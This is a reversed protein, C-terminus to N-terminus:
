PQSWKGTHDGQNEFLQQMYSSRICTGIGVGLHLRSVPHELGMLLCNISTPRYVSLRSEPYILKSRSLIETM